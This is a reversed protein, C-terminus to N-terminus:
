NEGAAEQLIAQMERAVDELLLKYESERGWAKALLKGAYAAVTVADLAMIAGALRRDMENRVLGLQRRYKDNGYARIISGAGRVGAYLEKLEKKEETRM